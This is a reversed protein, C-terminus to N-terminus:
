GAEAAEVTFAPREEEYFSPCDVFRLTGLNESNGCYMESWQSNVLVSQDDNSGVSVAGPGTPPGGADGIPSSASLAELAGIM